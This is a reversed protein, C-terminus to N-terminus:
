LLPLTLSYLIFLGLLFAVLGYLWLYKLVLPIAWQAYRQHLKWPVLVLALTTGVLLWGLSGFVVPYLMHPAYVIFAVGMLMRLGQELYHAEATSAFKQLFRELVPRNLIIM